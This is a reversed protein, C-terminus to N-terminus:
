YNNISSLQGLVLCRKQWFILNWHLQWVGVNHFTNQHTKAQAEKLLNAISLIGYHKSNDFLTYQYCIRAIERTPKRPLTQQSPMFSDIKGLNIPSYACGCLWLCGVIYFILYYYKM